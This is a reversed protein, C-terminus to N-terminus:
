IYTYLYASFGPVWFMNLEKEILKLTTKKKEFFFFVCKGSSCPNGVYEISHLPPILFEFNLICVCVYVCQRFITM